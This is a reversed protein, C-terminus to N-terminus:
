EVSLGYEECLRALGAAFGAGVLRLKWRGQYRYVECVNVTKECRLADLPFAYKPAGDEFLIVRPDRVHSFDKGAGDEYVSLCVAVREVSAALKAVEVRAGPLREGLLRAQERTYHMLPSGEELWISRYKRSVERPRVRLIIGELIPKWLLPSMEIVRRDSLFERLFSRVAGPEPATPTGLNVLVLAPCAEGTRAAGTQAGGTQAGGTQTRISTSTTAAADQSNTM